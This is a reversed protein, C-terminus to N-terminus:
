QRGTSAVCRMACIRWRIISPAAPRDIGLPRARPSSPRRLCTAPQLATPPPWNHRPRAGWGDEYRLCCPRSRDTMRSGRRVPASRRHLRQQRVEAVTGPAEGTAVAVVDREFGRVPRAGENERWRQRRRRRAATGARALSVKGAFNFSAPGGSYWLGYPVCSNWPLPGM